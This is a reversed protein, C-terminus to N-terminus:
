SSKLRPSVTTPEVARPQLNTSAARKADGLARAQHFPLVSESRHNTRAAAINVAASGSGRERERTLQTRLRVSRSM